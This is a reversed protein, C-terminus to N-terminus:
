RSRWSQLYGADAIGAAGPALKLPRYTDLMVATEDTSKAGIGAEISGPHPGHIYGAPHLSVSGQEIGTGKRSMFSGDAYFLVEDSDVNAHFPPVPVADPHYDFLRPVFSCIVFGPGEFTQHVPPPRHLSGTVPSFDWINFAWPYLCGFWGVVDFPHRAMTYRTLGNRNKVLVDVDEGEVLLPGEPRRLDLECFPANELFQGRASLYRAPPTLHGSAEFTLARLPEASTPVWRHTTSTPVVVYDGRGAELTGFVTELRAQGSEIYVLEDGIANRYLPSPQDVAAYSMVVDDNALLPVRGTVLDGAVKLQHPRLHRPLLPHNDTLQEPEQGVPAARVVDSPSHRHYLLSSDGVFGEEGMLEERYLGGNPQRFQTHRKRPIDGVRTFYPM